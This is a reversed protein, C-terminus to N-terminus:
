EDGFTPSRNSDYNYYYVDAGFTIHHNLNVLTQDISLRPTVSWTDFDSDLSSPFGSQDFFAKQNKFRYGFDIIAELM